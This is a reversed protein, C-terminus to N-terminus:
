FHFQIGLSGSSAALYNYELFASMNPNFFYSLGSIGAITIPFTYGTVFGVGLGLFLDLNEFIEIDLGRFGFHATAFAGVGFQMTSGIGLYGEALVGIDIPMNGEAFETKAVIYEVGPFIALGNAQGGVAIRVAMNTDKYQSGFPTDNKKAFVPMTLAICLIIMLVTKLRM